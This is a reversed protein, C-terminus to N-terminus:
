RAFSANAPDESVGGSGVQAAPDGGNIADHNFTHRVGRRVAWVLTEHAHTFATRLANPAVIPVLPSTFTM